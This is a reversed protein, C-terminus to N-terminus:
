QPLQRHVATRLDTQTAAVGATDMVTTESKTDTALSHVPVPALM